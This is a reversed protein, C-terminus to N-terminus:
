SVKVAVVRIRRYDAFWHGDKQNTKRLAEEALGIVNPLATESVGKLMGGSFMTIWNKMGDEGELPTPRDFLWASRVEFGNAELLGSYQSISPFFWTHRVTQGTTTYIANQVADTVHQMNGKGGFEAVFRGGPKLANAICVVAKEAERVWHLTANSFVADFPQKFHFNAADAHVFDIAPYKERAARVMDLSNDLGIVEAGADAIQQTLHGTGAGLDLIREGAKPALLELLGKAMQFVFAHKQDYLATNWVQNGTQM